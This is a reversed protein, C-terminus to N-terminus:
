PDRNLRMFPMTQLLSLLQLKLTSNNVQMAKAMQEKMADPVEAHVLVRRRNFESCATAAKFAGPHRAATAPSLICSTRCQMATDSTEPALVQM